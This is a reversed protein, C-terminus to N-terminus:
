TREGIARAVMALVFVALAPGLAWMFLAPEPYREASALVSAAMPATFVSFVTPMM